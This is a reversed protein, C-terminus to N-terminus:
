ENFKFTYKIKRNNTIEVAEIALDPTRKMNTGTVGINNPHLTKAEALIPSMTKESTENAMDIFAIKQTTNEIKFYSTFASRRTPCM